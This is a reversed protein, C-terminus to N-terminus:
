PRVGSRRQRDEYKGLRHLLFDAIGRFAMRCMELKEKEFCIIKVLENVTLRLELISWLPFKKMYKASLVLRNRFRYYVRVPPYRMVAVRRYVFRRPLLNGLRQRLFANGLQIVKYGHTRLRMCYEFDVYDIILEDMFRGAARYAILNLLTGSTIALFVEKPGPPEAPKEYNEYQHCPSLIGINRASHRSLFESFASVLNASAISDQDMMLLFDFGRELALSAGINLAAAIGANGGNWLYVVNGANRIRDTVAPDPHESNDVAFLVEIQSIYSGISGLVDERPNYLVVVGAIRVM